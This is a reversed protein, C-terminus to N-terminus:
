RNSWPGTRRPARRPTSASSSDNKPCTLLFSGRVRPSRCPRDHTSGPPSGSRGGQASPLRNLRYACRIVFRGNTGASREHDAETLATSRFICHRRRRHVSHMLAPKHANTALELSHQVTLGFRASPKRSALSSSSFRAKGCCGKQAAQEESANQSCTRDDPLLVRVLASHGPRAPLGSSRDDLCELTPLKLDRACRYRGPDRGFSELQSSDLPRASATTWRRITLRAPEPHAWCSVALHIGNCRIVRDFSLVCRRVSIVKNEVDVLEDDHGGISCADISPAM